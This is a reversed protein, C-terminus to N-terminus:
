DSELSTSFFSEGTFLDLCNVLNEMVCLGLPNAKADFIVFEFPGLLRRLSNNTIVPILIDM